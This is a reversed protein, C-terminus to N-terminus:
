PVFLLSSLGNFTASDSQTKCCYDKARPLVSLIPKLMAKTYYLLSEKIQIFTRLRMEPQENDSFLCNYYCGDDGKLVDLEVEEEM